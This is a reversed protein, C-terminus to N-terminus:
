RTARIPWEFWNAGDVGRRNEPFRRVLEVDRELQRARAPSLTEGAHTAVRVDSVRAVIVAEQLLLLEAEPANRSEADMLAALAAALRGGRQRRGAGLV